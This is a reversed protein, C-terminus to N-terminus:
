ARDQDTRQHWPMINLIEQLHDLTPTYINELCLPLTLKQPHSM